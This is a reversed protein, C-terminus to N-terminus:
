QSIGASKYINAYHQSVYVKSTDTGHPISNKLYLDFHGSVGNDSITDFSHPMGSLSSAINMGDKFIVVPRPTWDWQTWLQKMINTDSSTVPEVDAHNYGGMVKVTFVRGTQLDTIKLVSNRRLLYKGDLFWDVLHGYKTPALDEGPIVAYNRPAYGNIAIKEGANFWDSSTMYNYKMIDSASVGFKRSIVTANDGAQVVYTISPWYLVPTPKISTTPTPSPPSVPQLKYPILLSQGAFITDTALGNITKISLVTTNFKTAISYLSDTSKVVYTITDPMIKLVQGIYISDSVLGNLTKLSNITTGFKNAIIWLSDGSSVTYLHSDPKLKLIQGIYISDTVLGNLLKLDNVTVFNAASIKWLTDGSKVTYTDLVAASVQFINLVFMLMSAVIFLSVLKKNRRM